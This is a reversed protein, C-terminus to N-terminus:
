LMYTRLTQNGKQLPTPLLQIENQVIILRVLSRNYCRGYHCWRMAGLVCHKYRSGFVVWVGLHKPGRERGGYRECDCVCWFVQALFHSWLLKEM